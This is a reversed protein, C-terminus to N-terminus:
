ISLCSVTIISVSHRIAPLLLLVPHKHHNRQKRSKLTIDACSASISDLSDKVERVPLLRKRRNDLQVRVRSLFLWHLESFVLFIMVESSEHPYSMTGLPLPGM